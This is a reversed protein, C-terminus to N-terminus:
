LLIKFNRKEQNTWLGIQGKEIGLQSVKNEITTECCNMMRSLQSISFIPYNKILFESDESTWKRRRTFPKIGHRLLKQDITTHGIDLIKSLEKSTMKHCNNFLFEEKEKTWFIPWRKGNKYQRIRYKLSDITRDPFMNKIVNFGANKFILDELLQNEDETWLKKSNFM